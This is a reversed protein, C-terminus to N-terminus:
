STVVATMMTTTAKSSSNTTTTADLTRITRGNWFPMMSCNPLYLSVVSEPSCRITGNMWCICSTSMRSCTTSTGGCSTMVESLTTTETSATM